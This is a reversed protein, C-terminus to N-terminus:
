GQNSSMGCVKFIAAIVWAGWNLALDLILTGVLSMERSDLNGFSVAMETAAAGCLFRTGSSTRKPPEPGRYRGAGIALFRPHFLCIDTNLLEHYSCLWFNCEM